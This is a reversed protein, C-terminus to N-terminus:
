PVPQGPVGVDIKVLGPGAGLPTGLAISFNVAYVSQRDGKSTGFAVSTPGDLGDSATALTELTGDVNVRQVENNAPAAIYVNGHVDLAIGDVFNNPPLQAWLSASGASGDPLIPVTVISTLETVGVYVTNHGVAIGNAGIPFPFGASGDGELLPDQIWLEASGQRLVRWVAGMISDTIYMTGRKDFAISNPFLIDETGAVREEVGTKRDFKWVGHADPNASFVGGYVNGPADTALGILGIDGPGLGQVSGFPQATSSGPQVKVLQGLPSLSVFVNGNKDVAVGEPLEGLNPDFQVVTEAHNLATAVSLLVVTTGLALLFASPLREALSHHRMIGLNWIVAM